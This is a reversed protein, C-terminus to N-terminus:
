SKSYATKVKKEEEKSLSRAIRFGVDVNNNQAMISTKHNFKFGEEGLLWGMGKILQHTHETLEDVTPDDVWERVNGMLGYVGFINPNESKVSSTTKFESSFFRKKIKSKEKDDSCFDLLSDANMNGQSAAFRWEAETPLRYGNSDRNIKLKNFKKNQFEFKYYPNLKEKRSLYNCFKAAAFWALWVVPHNQKGVPIKDTTWFIIHYYNIINSYPNDTRKADGFVESRLWHHGLCDEESEDKVFENSYLFESYDKNTIETTGLFFPSVRENGPILVMKKDTNNESTSIPNSNWLDYEKLVEKNLNLGVLKANSSLYKLWPSYARSTQFTTEIAELIRNYSAIGEVNEKHSKIDTLKKLKANLFIKSKRLIEDSNFDYKGLNKVGSILKEENSDTLLYFFHNAVYFAFISSSVFSYHKEDQLTIVTQTQLDNLVVEFDVDEIEKIFKPFEEIDFKLIEREIMYWALKRLILNKEEAEFPHGEIQLEKSLTKYNSIARDSEINFEIVMRNICQEYIDVLSHFRNSALLKIAFLFYGPTDSLNYLEKEITGEEMKELRVLKNLGKDLQEDKLEEARNLLKVLAKNDLRTIEWINFDQRVKREEPNYFGNTYNLNQSKISVYKKYAFHEFIQTRSSFFNIRSTLIFKSTNSYVSFIQWINKITIENSVEKSMEDLGDFVLIIKGTKLLTSFLFYGGFMKINYQEILHYFILEGLNTVGPISESLGRLNLYIPLPNSWPNERHVKYKRHCYNLVSWSKGIGREGLLLLPKNGNAEWEDMLKELNSTIKEFSEEDHFFNITRDVYFNIINTYLSSNDFHDDYGKSNFLFNIFFLRADTVREIDTFKKFCDIIFYKINSFKSTLESNIESDEKPLILIFQEFEGRPLQLKHVWMRIGNIDDYIHRSLELRNSLKVVEDLINIIDTYIVENKTM